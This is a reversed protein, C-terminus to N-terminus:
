GVLQKPTDIGDKKTRREFIKFIIGHTEKFYYVVYLWVYMLLNIDYSIITFNDLVTIINNQSFSNKQTM